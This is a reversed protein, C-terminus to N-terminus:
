YYVFCFRGEIRTKKAVVIDNRKEVYTVQLCIIDLIKCELWEWSLSTKIEGGIIWLLYNKGYYGIFMM